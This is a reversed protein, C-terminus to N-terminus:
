LCAFINKQHFKLLNKPNWDVEGEGGGGVKGQVLVLQTKAWKYISKFM